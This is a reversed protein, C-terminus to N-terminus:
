KKVELLDLYAKEWIRCNHELNFNTFVDRYANAAIRKRLDLNEILLSIQDIWEQETSALLGTHGPQIYNSYPIMDQAVVTAGMAAFELVKIQSKCRNFELDALPCLGIDFHRSALFLTYFKLDKWNNWELQQEPIDKFMDKWLPVPPCQLVIKVQPYKKCIAPLLTKFLKIDQFHSDGGFWGIRVENMYKVPRPIPKWLDFDISNPCVVVNSNYKRFKEALYETTTTVLDASKLCAIFAEYKSKNAKIDFGNEQDRWRVVTNGNNDKEEVEECGLDAYRPNGKDLDFSFDDYDVVVKIGQGKYVTMLDHAEPCGPAQLAIIKANKIHQDIEARAVRKESNNSVYFDM